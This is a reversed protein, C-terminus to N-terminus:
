QRGTTNTHTDTHVHYLSLSLSRSISLLLSICEFYIVGKQLPLTAALIRRACVSETLVDELRRRPAHAAFCFPSRQVLVLAALSPPM